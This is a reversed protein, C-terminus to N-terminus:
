ERRKKLADLQEQVSQAREERQEVARRAAQKDDYSAKASRVRRRGYFYVGGAVVGVIGLGLVWQVVEAFLGSLYLFGGALLVVGGVAGWTWLRRRALSRKAAPEIEDNM